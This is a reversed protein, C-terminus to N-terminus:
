KAKVRSYLYATQFEASRGGIKEALALYDTLEKSFTEYLRILDDDPTDNVSGPKM